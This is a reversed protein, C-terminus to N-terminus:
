ETPERQRLEAAFRHHLASWLLAPEGDESLDGSSVFRPPETRDRSVLVYKQQATSTMKVGPLAALVYREGIAAYERDQLAEDILERRMTLLGTDNDVRYFKANQRALEREADFGAAPTRPNFETETFRIRFPPDSPTQQSGLVSALSQGSFRLGSAGLNLLDLLTPTVDELTAPTAEEAPELYALPARGFGRFALLVQYQAPALVSTGHGSRDLPIRYEGMRRMDETLLVDATRGLSEGHDSLLVVVANQLAGKRRLIDLLKGVQSDAEKLAQEYFKPDRVDHADTVRPARAWYFPYHPLTFHVALFTPRSFDLEEELKDTFAEPMYLHAASRNAHSHPFLMAGLRTQALLNSLPADNITALLFDAAGMPPGIVKDFGYSEDINAFRVEDMAFFTSYGRDRLIEALTPSTDISERQILNIVAGTDHPHRGTLITVWSPFTRALPTIVDEFVIAERLFDNVHPTFNENDAVLTFDPRLSDVGILIVHPRTSDTAKSNQNASSTFSVILAVALCTCGMYLLVARSRIGRLRKAVAGLTVALTCTGVATLILGAPSVGAIRYSVLGSFYMGLASWPYFHANAVFTALALLFFWALVLTKRREPPLAFLYATLWALGLITLAFSFYVLLQSGIFKLIEAGLKSGLLKADIVSDLVKDGFFLFDYSLYVRCFSVVMLTLSLVVCM